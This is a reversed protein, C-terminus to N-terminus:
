FDDRVERKAVRVSKPLRRIELAKGLTDDDPHALRRFQPLMGLAWLATAWAGISIGPDGAEMRHLTSTAVLLRKAFDAQTEHRRKRATKLYEGLQRVATAVDSPLGFKSLSAKAM